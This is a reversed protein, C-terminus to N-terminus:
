RIFDRSPHSRPYQALFRLFKVLAQDSKTFHGAKFRITNLVATDEDVTRQLLFRGFDIRERITKGAETAVNRVAISVFPEFTGPRPLSYGASVGLWWGDVLGQQIFTSTGRIGAQWAIPIGNQHIADFNYRFGWEDWEFSDLVNAKFQVGHVVAVHQFDPTNCSLVWPDCPYLQGVFPEFVLEEDPYEFDFLQFRPEPGNYIWVIGFREQVPFTYLFARPPPCTNDATRACMGNPDYEWRHFACQINNGVVTGVFLDAGVHPCYASQGRVVGDAGRYIIVRGDLFNKGVVKGVPVESALAIPFWSESFLGDDGERPFKISEMRRREAVPIVDPRTQREVTEPTTAM